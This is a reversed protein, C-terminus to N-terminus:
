IFETIDVGYDVTEESIVPIDHYQRTINDIHDISYLLVIIFYDVQFYGCDKYRFKEYAERVWTWMKDCKKVYDNDLVITFSNLVCKEYEDSNPFKIDGDRVEILRRRKLQIIFDIIQSRCVENNLLRTPVYFKYSGFGYNASRTIQLYNIYDEAVVTETNHNRYNM